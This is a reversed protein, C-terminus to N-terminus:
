RRTFLLSSRSGPFSTLPVVRFPRPQDGKYCPSGDALRGSILILASIAVGLSAGAPLSIRKRSAPPQVGETIEARGPIPVPEPSRALAARTNATSSEGTGALRPSREGPPSQLVVIDRVRSTENAGSVPRAFRYGRKPMTEIYTVGDHEGLTKRFLFVHQALTAENVLTGPWM